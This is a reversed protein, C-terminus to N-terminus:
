ESCEEEEFKYGMGWITKIFFPNKPDNEIKQRLHSIHSDISRDFPTSEKGRVEDLLEDRSFLRGPNSALHKLLNFETATLSLKKGNKIVECKPFNIYLNKFMLENKPSLKEKKVIDVRRLNAKIRASLERLSFPKTLYDDAGIELGVVVDTEEGKATLIIIPVSSEKRLEKCVDLGSLGPMMLDLIIINPNVEKFKEIGMLGDFAIYIQYGDGQLYEQINKVLKRDDDIILIKEM